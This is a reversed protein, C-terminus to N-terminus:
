HGTKRAGHCNIQAPNGAYSTALGGSVAASLGSNVDGVSALKGNGADFTHTVGSAFEMTYGLDNNNGPTLDRLVYLM